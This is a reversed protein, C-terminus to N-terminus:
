MPRRFNKAVRPLVATAHGSAARAYCRSRMRRMPTSMLVAALFNPLIVIGAREM